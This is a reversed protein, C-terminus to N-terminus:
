ANKRKILQSLVVETRKILGFLNAAALHVKEDRGLEPRPRLDLLNDGTIPEIDELLEEDVGYWTGNAVSNSTRVKTKGQFVFTGGQPIIMGVTVPQPEHEGAYDIAFGEAKARRERPEAVFSHQWHSELQDGMRDVEAALAENAQRLAELQGKLAGNETSLQATRSKWYDFYDNGDAGRPGHLINRVIANHEAQTVEEKAGQTAPAPGAGRGPTAASTYYRTVIIDKASDGTGFRRSSFGVRAGSAPDNVIIDNGNYGVALVFHMLDALGRLRVELIALGGGDLHAKLKTLNAPVTPTHDADGARFVPLLQPLKGWVVLNGQAYGGSRTFLDNVMNPYTVQGTWYHNAMAICSVLCGHSSLTTADVTGLRQRAWRPDSQGLIPVNHVM